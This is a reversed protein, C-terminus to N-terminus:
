SSLRYFYSLYRMEGTWLNSDNVCFWPMSAFLFAKCPTIASGTAEMALQFWWCCRSRVDTQCGDPCTVLKHFTWLLWGVFLWLLKLLNGNFAQIDWVPHGPRGFQLGADGRHKKQTSSCDVNSNGRCSFQVDRPPEVMESPSVDGLWPQFLLWAWGWCRYLTQLGFFIYLDFSFPLLFILIKTYIKLFSKM